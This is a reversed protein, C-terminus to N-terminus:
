LVFEGVTSVVSMAFMVADSQDKKNWGIARNTDVYCQLNVVIKIATFNKAIQEGLVRQYSAEDLDDSLGINKRLSAARPDDEIWKPCHCCKITPITSIM